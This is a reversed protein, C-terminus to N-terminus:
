SQDEFFCTDSPSGWPSPYPELLRTLQERLEIPEILWGVYWLLKQRNAPNAVTQLRHDKFDSFVFLALDQM